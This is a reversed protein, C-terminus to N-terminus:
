KQSAWTSVAGSASVQTNGSMESICSNPVPGSCVSGGFGMQSPGHIASSFFTNGIIHVNTLTASYSTNQQVIIGQSNYGSGYTPLAKNNVIWIYGNNGYDTTINAPGGTSDCLCSFYNNAITIPHAANPAPAGGGYVEPGGDTHVCAPNSSKDCRSNHMYNWEFDVSAGLGAQDTNQSFESYYVHSTIGAGEAQVIVPHTTNPAGAGDFLVHLLYLGGGPGNGIYGNGGGDGTEIVHCNTIYVALGPVTAGGGPGMTIPNNIICNDFYYTQNNNAPSSLTMKGSSYGAPRCNHFPSSGSCAPMSSIPTLNADTVGSLLGPKPDNFAAGTLPNADASSDRFTMACTTEAATCQSDAITYTGAGAGASAPTQPPITVPPVTTPPITTPPVTTTPVTKATTTPPVTTPAVTTPAVTVTTPANTVPAVSSTSGSSSATFVVDAFYNSSMYSEQPFCSRRSYCFVGNNNSSASLPGNAAPSSFYNHTSVYGGKPAFYSVVYNTNASLNVPASLAASQWGSATENAFDVSALLQGNGSWLHGTKTASPTGVGKWYNLASVSGAASSRFRVGLEVSNPDISASKPGAVGAFLSVPAPPTSAGGALAFYAPIFGIVTLVAAGLAMKRRGARGRPRKVPVLDNTNAGYGANIRSSQM